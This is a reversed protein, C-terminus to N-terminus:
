GMLGRERLLPRPDVRHRDFGCEEERGMALALLQTFYLVPMGESEQRRDLNFYCLPCSLVLADAGRGRACDVIEAVRRAVADRKDVTHYSGCCRSALPNPVPEAGVAGMLDSLMSPREVHDIAVEEPRLLLCGYYPALRLGELPRTVRSSIEELGVQDMLFTLLHTVEVGGQYDPEDDMFANLTDLKERDGGILRNAQALTNYCMACMTVLRDSGAAEVRALNRAPSVQHFLDDDSLGFVTGCCTWSEMEELRHGLLEMVAKGSSELHRATTRHTCGPFYTLNM